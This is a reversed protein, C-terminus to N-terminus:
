RARWSKGTRSLEVCKSWRGLQIVPLVTVKTASFKGGSALSGTVEVDAGIMVKGNREEIVTQESVIVTRGSVVWEGPWRQAGESTATPNPLKEIRGVMKLPMPAPPPPLIVIETATLAGAAGSSARVSATAGVAVEALRSDIRTLDNVVVTRSGIKWNGIRGPTSPLEEIRDVFTTQSSPAPISKSEIKTADYGGNSQRTVQAEAYASIAPRGEIRTATTVNVKTRGITWEGIWRTDTPLTLIPGEIKVSPSSQAAAGVSQVALSSVLNPTPLLHFSLSTLILVVLSIRPAANQSLRYKM